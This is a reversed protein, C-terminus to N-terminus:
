GTGDAAREAPQDAPRGTPWAARGARRCAPRSTLGDAPRHSAARSGASRSTRRSDAPYPHFFFRLPPFFVVLPSFFFVKLAFCLLAICLLVTQNFDAPGYGAGFCHLARCFGRAATHYIKLARPPIAFVIIKLFSGGSPISGLVKLKCSQREVVSSYLGISACPRRERPEASGPRPSARSCQAASPVPQEAGLRFWSMYLM